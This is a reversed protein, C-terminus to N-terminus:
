TIPSDKKKVPIWLESQYSNSLMDGQLYVEMRPLPLQEYESCPFWELLTTNKLSIMANPIPGSCNFVLWDAEPFNIENLGDLEQTVASTTGILYNFTPQGREDSIGLLGNTTGDTVALLKAMMDPTLNRWMKAIDEFNEGNNAATFEEIFGIVRFAAKHGKKAIM